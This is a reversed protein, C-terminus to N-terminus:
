INEAPDVEEKTGGVSYTDKEKPGSAYKVSLRKGVTLFTQDVPSGNVLAQSIVVRGDKIKIQAYIENKMRTEVKKGKEDKVKSLANEM